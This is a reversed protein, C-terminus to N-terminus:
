HRFRSVPTPALRIPSVRGRPFRAVLGGRLADMLDEHPHNPDVPYDMWVGGRRARVYGDFAAALYKCRPDMVFGNPTELFGEILRLGDLVSQSPWPRLEIGGSKYETMLNVAAANRSETAPDCYNVAAGSAGTVSRVLTRLEQAVTRPSAGERLYDALVSVRFPEAKDWVQFLVAGTFVGTDVALYLPLGPEYAISRVHQAPDYGAFWRGESAVWLGRYLRDLRSGSLSARLRQFYSDAKPTWRRGDWLAPNAKHSTNWLCAIGADCREKIWHTPPGPNTDGILWGFRSDMGPRDMRSAVIEWAEQSIEIAENFYVVDWATSFVATPNRDLGCLVIESGNDYSYKARHGRSAGASVHDMGDSPLIEREYTVLVSETLSKRTARAFLMRTGPYDACICHLVKLLGYTKGTGAPGCVILERPM